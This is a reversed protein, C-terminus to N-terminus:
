GGPMGAIMFNALETMNTKGLLVAGAARLNKVFFADELAFSDALALTGASTHMNDATDINDKLLIM